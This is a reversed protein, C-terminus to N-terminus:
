LSKMTAMANFTEANKVGLPIWSSIKWALPTASSTGAKTFEPIM